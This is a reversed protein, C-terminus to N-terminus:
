KISISVPTTHQLNDSVPCRDEIANAWKKLTAEDADTDPKLVVSIEKFGARDEFSQGYLRAPNLTGSIDIKIGRLTIDMEKAILHAMVNLCGAFAGLLYEVPTSGENTGGMEVPEDIILQFNRAKVVTKTANESHARVRVKMDAM